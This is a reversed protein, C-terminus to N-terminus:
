SFLRIVITTGEGGPTDYHEVVCCIRQFYTGQKRHKKAKEKEKVRETERSSGEFHLVRPRKSHLAVM